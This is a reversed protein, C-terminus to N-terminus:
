VIKFGKQKKEVPNFRVIQRQKYVNMTITSNKHGLWMSIDNVDQNRDLCLDVFGKRGGYCTIRDDGSHKRITKPHPRHINKKEIIDLCLKQEKFILPIHKWRREEAISMLKTQYISVVNVKNAHDYTVKVAKKNVISDVEEPRLGLWVSIYLWNYTEESVKSKMSALIEPTLPDSTMRVGLESNKGSKSRQAEAIAAKERGKPAEVEEFYQGRNKSIFKGWRNLLSILRCGYNVSVKKKVFYKYIRKSEDRYETPSTIKLELLMKQIFNFHSFVKKLHEESGFNEDNLREIFANVHEPPFLTKDILKLEVVRKSSRRITDKDIRRESNLQKTRKRAEELTMDPRLGLEEYALKAVSEQSKVGEQYCQYYLAWTGAASGNKKIYFNGKDKRFNAIGM